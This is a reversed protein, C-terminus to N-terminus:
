KVLIALVEDTIDLSDHAYIFPRTLIDGVLESKTRGQVESDSIIAVAGFGREEAVQKVVAKCRGYVDRLAEVVKLQFEIRIIKRELDLTAELKKIRKLQALHPARPQGLTSQKSIANRLVDMRAEFEIQFGETKAKTAPHERMLKEMDVFALTCAVPEAVDEVVDAYGAALAVGLALVFTLVSFSLRNM